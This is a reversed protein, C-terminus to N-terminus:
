QNVLFNIRTFVVPIFNTVAHASNRLLLYKWHLSKFRWSVLGYSFTGSAGDDYQPSTSLKDSAVVSIPRNGSHYYKTDSSPYDREGRNRLTLTPRANTAGLKPLPPRDNENIVDTSRPLTQSLTKRPHILNSSSSASSNSSSSSSSRKDLTSSPYLKQQNLAQIYNLHHRNVMENNGIAITNPNNNATGNGRVSLTNNNYLSKTEDGLSTLSNVHVQVGPKMPWKSTHNSIAAPPSETIGDPGQLLHNLPRKADCTSTTATTINHNSLHGEDDTSFSPNSPFPPTVCRLVLSVYVFSCFLLLCLQQIIM